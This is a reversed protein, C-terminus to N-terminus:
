VEVAKANRVCQKLHRLLKTEVNRAEEILDSEDELFLLAAAATERGGGKMETLLRIAKGADLTGSTRLSIMIAGHAGLDPFAAIVCALDIDEEPLHSSVLPRKGLILGATHGLWPRRTAVELDGLFCSVAVFGNVPRVQLNEDTIARELTGTYDESEWPEVALKIVINDNAWGAFETIRQWLSDSVWAPQEDKRQRDQDTLFAAWVLGALDADESLYNSSGLAAQMLHDLLLATCAYEPVVLRGGVVEQGEYRVETGAPHHHDFLFDPTRLNKAGSALFTPNSVDVVVTVPPKETEGNMLWGTEIPLVELHDEIAVLQKPDGSHYVRVTKAGVQIAWHRVLRVAAEADPDLGPHFYIEVVKREAVLRAFADILLAMQVIPSTEAESEHIKKSM